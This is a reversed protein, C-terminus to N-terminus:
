ATYFMYITYHEVHEAHEVYSINRLIFREFFSYMWVFENIASM